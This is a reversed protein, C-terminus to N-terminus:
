DARVATELVSGFLTVIEEIQEETIVFPPAIM